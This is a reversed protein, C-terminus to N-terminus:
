SDRCAGHAPLQDEHLWPRAKVAIVRRTALRLVKRPVSGTVAAVLNGHAHTGMVICGVDLREAEAVIVQGVRERRADRVVASAPIGRRRLESAAGNVCHVAEESTEYSFRVGGRAVDWPRVFLVWAVTPRHVGLRTAADLAARAAASGNYPLLFRLPESGRGECGDPLAPWGPAPGVFCRASARRDVVSSATM